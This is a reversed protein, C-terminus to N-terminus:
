KSTSIKENGINETESKRRTLFLISLWIGIYASSIIIISFAAKMGMISDCLSYYSVGILLLLGGYKSLIIFFKSIPFIINAICFAIGFSLVMLLFYFGLVMPWIKKKLNNISDKALYVGSPLNLIKKISSPLILDLKQYSSMDLYKAANFNSLIEPFKSFSGVHIDKQTSLWELLNDFEDYSLKGKQRDVDTFEYDHFMLVLVPQFDDILRASQIATEITSLNCTAPLFKLASIEKAPGLMNASINEFQLQELVKITNLDYSNFPPIFTNIKIGLKNELFQKGNAIKELQKNFKLGSFETKNRNRISIHDFGHLAVEIIDSKIADDLIHAKKTSLANELGGYFPTVGFTCSINYARFAKILKIELDTNTSNSYDDYRLFVYIQKEKALEKVPAETNCSTFQLIIIIPVLLRLSKITITEL